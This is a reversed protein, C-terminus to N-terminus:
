NKIELAKIILQQAVKNKYRELADGDDIIKSYLTLNSPEALVEYNIELFRLNKDEQSEETLVYDIFEKSRNLCVIPGWFDNWKAIKDDTVIDEYYVRNQIRPDEENMLIMLFLKHEGDFTIVSLTEQIFSMLQQSWAMIAQSEKYETVIPKLSLSYAIASLIKRPFNLRTINSSILELFNAYASNKVDADDATGELVQNEQEIGVEALIKNQELILTCLLDISVVSANLYPLIYQTEEEDYSGIEAKFQTIAFRIVDIKEFSKKNLEVQEECNMIIIQNDPTM